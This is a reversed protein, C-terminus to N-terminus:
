ANEKSAKRSAPSGIWIEGSPIDKTVTSGAGVIVNSGIEVGPLITANAGILTCEGVKANGGMIVGPAIHCFDMIRCDHDIVASHNIIVSRGIVARPAVIARAAVFCGADVACYQSILATPHIISVPVGGGDVISKFLSQRVKNNGISIHFSVAGLGSPSFPASVQRGLFLLGNLEPNSDYILIKAATDRVLLADLVVTAHGGCGILVVGETSM